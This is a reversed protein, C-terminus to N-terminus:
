QRGYCSRDIGTVETAYRLVDRFLRLLYEVRNLIRLAAIGIDNTEIALMAAIAPIYWLKNNVDLQQRVIARSRRTEAHRHIVARYIDAVNIDELPIFPDIERM